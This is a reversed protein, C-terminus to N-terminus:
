FYIVKLSMKIVDFIKNKKGIFVLHFSNNFQKQIILSDILHLYTSAILVKDM